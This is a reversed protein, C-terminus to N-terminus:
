FFTHIEFFLVNQNHTPQSEVGNGIYYFLSTQLFRNWFPNFGFSVRNEGDNTDTLTGDNDAYNVTAQFNLWDFFLYDAQGYCVFQGITRGNTTPTRTELFDAEGLVTLRELNTGAFFGWVLKSSGPPQVESVSGGILINRVVPVDTFMSYITSTVQLSTDGSPGNTLAVIATVPGPQVGLELGAQQQDFGFGTNASGNYGERIFPTNDQLELGYPLFMRGAKVFGDWPFVGSLMAWAERTTTSPQFEQDVYVMLYDPILRVAGYLDFENVAIDNSELRGRFVKNNDVRGNVGQDQFIATDSVRLDSGIGVYKNIEGTFFDPPNSFSGLFSPYHLIDRAHTRVLDTRMGGGTINVHCAGCAMGERVAFYPEAFAAASCALVGAAALLLCRGLRPRM